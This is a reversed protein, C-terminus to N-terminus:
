HNVITIVRHIANSKFRLGVLMHLIIIISAIMVVILSEVTLLLISEIVLAVVATAKMVTFLCTCDPSASASTFRSIPSDASSLEACCSASAWRLCLLCVM